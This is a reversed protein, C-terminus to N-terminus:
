SVPRFHLNDFFFLIDIVSPDPRFYAPMFIISNVAHLLHDEMISTLPVLFISFKRLEAKSM